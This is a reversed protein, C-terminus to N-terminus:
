SIRKLKGSHTQELQDVVEFRSPIQYRALRNQCHERLRRALDLPKEPEILEIKAVIMQGILPNKEGSVLVNRINEAQRIVEEVTAASVKEGGVNIIDSSRGLV